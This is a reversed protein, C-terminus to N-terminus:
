PVERPPDERVVGLVSVPFERPHVEESVTAPGGREPTLDDPLLLGGFRATRGRPPRPELPIVHRHNGHEADTIGLIETFHHFASISDLEVRM